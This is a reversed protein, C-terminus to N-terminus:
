FLAKLAKFRIKLPVPYLTAFIFLKLRKDQKLILQNLFNYYTSKIHIENPSAKLISLYKKFFYFQSKRYKFPYARQSITNDHQRYLVDAPFQTTLIKLKPTNLLAKIHFDVDQWIQLKPDFFVKHALLWSKKWTGASTQWPSNLSLFQRLPNPEVTNWDPLPSIQKYDNFNLQKLKNQPIKKVNFILADYDPYNKIAQTRQEIAYPLLIDDSDLFILYDGNAAQIGTNRAYAAGSGNKADLLKIKPYNKIKQELSEVMSADSHDNVLLLEWNSSTQKIVSNIAEILLELRNQFPTIISILM